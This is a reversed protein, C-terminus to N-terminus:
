RHAGAKQLLATIEASLDVYDLATHGKSDQANVDVGKALIAKVLSPAHDFVALMLPTAGPPPVFTANRTDSAHERQMQVTLRLNSTAPIAKRADGGKLAYTLATQGQHNKHQVDAGHALLLAISDAEGRCVAWMLPTDGDANALNPNAGHNLLARTCSSKGERQTCMLLSCGTRDTTNPDAGHDLLLTLLKDDPENQCVTWIASMRNLMRVNPNAHHELLLRVIELHNADMPSSALAQSLPYIPADVSQRRYLFNLFSRWPSGSAANGRTNPDAGQDLLRRVPELDGHTSALLLRDNLRSRQVVRYGYGVLGVVVLLFFWLM